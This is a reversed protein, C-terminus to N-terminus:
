TTNKNVSSVNRSKIVDIYKSNSFSRVLKFHMVNDFMHPADIIVLKIFPLITNLIWKNTLQPKGLNKKLLCISSIQRAQWLTHGNHNILKSTM